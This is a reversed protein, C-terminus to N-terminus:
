PCASASRSTRSRRSATSSTSRATRRTRRRRGPHRDSTITKIGPMGVFGGADGALQSCMLPQTGREPRDRAAAAPTSALVGVGILFATPLGAAPLVLHHM